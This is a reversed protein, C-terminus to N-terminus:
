VRGVVESVFFSRPVFLTNINKGSASVLKLDYVYRGDALGVTDESDLHFTVSEDEATETKVWIVADSIDTSSKLTMVVEVPEEEPEYLNNLFFTVDGTDGAPVVISLNPLVQVM